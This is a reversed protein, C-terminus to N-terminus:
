IKSFVACELKYTIKWIENSSLFHSDIFKKISVYNRWITSAENLDIKSLKSRWAFIPNVVNLGGSRWLRKVPLVWAKGHCCPSKGWIKLWKLSSLKNEMFVEHLQRMFCLLLLTLLLLCVIDYVYHVNNRWSIILTTFM